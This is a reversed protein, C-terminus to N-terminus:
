SSSHNRQSTRIRSVSINVEGAALNTVEFPM